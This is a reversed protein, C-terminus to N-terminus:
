YAHPQPLRLASSIPLIRQIDVALERRTARRRCREARKKTRARRLVAEIYDTTTKANWGSTHSSKTDFVISENFRPIFLIDSTKPRISSEDSSPILLIDENQDFVLNM